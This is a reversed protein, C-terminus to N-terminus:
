KFFGSCKTREECKNPIIEEDAYESAVHGLEHGVYKAMCKGCGSNSDNIKNM